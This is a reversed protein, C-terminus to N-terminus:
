NNGMFLSFKQVEVGLTQWPITGWLWCLPIGANRHEKYIDLPTIYAYFGHSLFILDIFSKLNLFLCVFLWVQLFGPLSDASRRKERNEWNWNGLREWSQLLIDKAIKGAVGWWQEWRRLIGYTMVTKVDRGRKMTTECGWSWCGKGALWYAIVAPFVFLNGISM